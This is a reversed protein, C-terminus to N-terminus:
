VPGDLTGWSVSPEQWTSTPCLSLERARRRAAVRSSGPVRVSGIRAPLIGEPRGPAALQCCARGALPPGRRALGLEARGRALVALLGASGARRACPRVAAAGGARWAPWECFEVLLYKHTALAEAFNSKRLVLVHDEEEPADAGVRAAAALALCLLARSLMDSTPAPPATRNAGGPCGLRRSRAGTRAEGKYIRTRPRAWYGAARALRRACAGRPARWNAPSSRPGGEGHVSQDGM